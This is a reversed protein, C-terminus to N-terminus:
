RDPNVHVMCHRAQPFEREVSRHVSEAIRHAESLPLSADAQIDVDVYFWSSFMRTKMEDIGLVGQQSLIVRRISEETQEDCAEDTLKAVSEKAIDFAVKLILLAIVISAIPDLIPFGLRAGAIGALSGVSSLADSRHHWADAMLAQSGLKKAANRTYWYMWEKVAISVGAAALALAGPSSLRGLFALQANQCAQRIIVLGTMLLISALVLAAVSEFRDHGYRHKQDPAKSGLNVGAIVVLTSFVDSASHAADSIMAGSRAIIGVFLKAASLIGNVALSVASVRNAIKTNQRDM